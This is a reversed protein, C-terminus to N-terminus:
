TGHQVSPFLHRGSSRNSIPKRCSRPASRTKQVRQHTAQSTSVTHGPPSSWVREDDQRAARHTQSAAWREKKARRGPPTRERTRKRKRKRERERKRGRRRGREKRGREKNYVSCQICIVSLGAPPPRRALASPESRVTTQGGEREGERKRACLPRIGTCFLKCVPRTGGVQKKAPQSAPQSYAAAICHTGMNRYDDACM